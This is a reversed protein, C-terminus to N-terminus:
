QQFRAADSQDVPKVSGEPTWTASACIMTM